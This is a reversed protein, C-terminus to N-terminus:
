GDERDYIAANRVGSPQFVVDRVDAGGRNVVPPAVAGIGKCSQASIKTRRMEHTVRSSTAADEVPMKLAAATGVDSPVLTQPM